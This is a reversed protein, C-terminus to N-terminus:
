MPAGDFDVGLTALAATATEMRGSTAIAWPIDAQTLNVPARAPNSTPRAGITPRPM